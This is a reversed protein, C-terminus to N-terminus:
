SFFLNVLLGSWKFSISNWPSASSPFPVLILLRLQLARISDSATRNVTSSLLLLVAPFHIRHLEEEEEADDRSCEQGRSLISNLTVNTAAILSRLIM